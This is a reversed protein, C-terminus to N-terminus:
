EAGTRGHPVHVPKSEPSGQQRLFVSLLVISVVALLESQWNQLSEFWFQPTRVYDVTAVSEGGHTAREASFAHAGTLAHAAFSAFFLVLFAIGLSHRYIAIALGGRRVPWPADPDNRHGNPDEDVPEKGELRKSESSGRQRLWVTLM